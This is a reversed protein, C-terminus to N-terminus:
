NVVFHFLVFSELHTNVLTDLLFSSMKEWDKNFTMM